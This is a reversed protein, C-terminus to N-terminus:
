SSKKFFKTFSKRLKHFRFGQQLLKKTINLNRINFDHLYSCCRAYRTLQSIYVGYSPARPVDGSLDPFNVIQFNFDDRKDYISTSIINNVITLNLDLFSASTDLDNAKKLNWNQLIYIQSLNQLIFITM